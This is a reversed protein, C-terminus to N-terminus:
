PAESDPPVMVLAVAGCTCERPWPTGLPAVSVPRKGCATCLVSGWVGWGGNAKAARHDDFDIVDAPM